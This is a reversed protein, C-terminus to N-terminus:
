VRMSNILASFQKRALPSNGERGYKIHNYLDVIRALQERQEFGPTAVRELFARSDEAPKKKLGQRALRRLLRNFQREYRPPRPPLERYWAIIWFGGSVAVLLVVMTIVMDSWNDIGLELSQLFNRQKREDYNLVWDNWNHQLSDWKFLFEGFIPNRNQIRFSPVEDALANDIGSEIRSPSVAATPDIRVTSTLM